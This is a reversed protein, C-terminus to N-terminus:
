RLICRIIKVGKPLKDIEIDTTENDYNYKYCECGYLSITTKLECPDQWDFFENVEEPIPIDADKCTDWVAKMKEYKEDKPIIGYLSISVSMNKEKRRKRGM